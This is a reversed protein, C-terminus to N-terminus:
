KVVIMHPKQPEQGLPLELQINGLNLPFKGPIKIILPNGNQVLIPAAAFGRQLAIFYEGPPMKGLNVRFGGSNRVAVRPLNTEFAGHGEKDTGSKLQHEKKVVQFYAKEPVKSKVQYWNTILGSIVAEGARVPAPAAMVGVALGVMVVTLWKRLLRDGQKGQVIITTQETCFLKKKFIVVPPFSLCNKRRISLAPYLNV